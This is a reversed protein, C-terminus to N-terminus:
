ELILKDKAIFDLNPTGLLYFCNAMSLQESVTSKDMQVKGFFKTKDFRTNENKTSLFSLDKAFHANSIAARDHFEVYNFLAHGRCDILSFDAYGLFKAVSLQLEANFVANQFSTTKNFQSNMFNAKQMFFSNQFRVEGDFYCDGFHANQFSSIEEFNTSEFFKSNTFDLRGLFTSGRFNVEANFKCGVFTVNSKFHTVITGDDSSHYSKVPKNFVCEVFTISSAIEAQSIKVGVFLNSVYKTFDIEDDFVKDKIVVPQGSKILDAVSMEKKNTGANQSICSLLVIAVLVLIAYKM